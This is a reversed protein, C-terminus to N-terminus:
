YLKLRAGYHYPDIELAKRWEFRAKTSNGLAEYIEGLFYRVDASNSNKELINLYQEEAKLYEGRNSYIKGLLFRSKEEVTYDRTKNLAWILYEEAKAVDNMQYYTQALALYLTDSPNVDLAKLYNDASKQFDSLSSYVLGLYEYTDEGIYGSVLSEELYKLSLDSYFKGKQYYAKGLIYLIKGRLNGTKMPLVKRLNIIAADILPLREELSFQGVGRYFYSFGNFVLAESDLPNLALIEECKTNVETYNKRNWITLLDEQIPLTTSESSQYSGIIGSFYLISLAIVILLLGILILTKINRGSKNQSSFNYRGSPLLM